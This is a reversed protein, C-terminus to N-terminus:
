VFPTRCRLARGKLLRVWHAEDRVPESSVMGGRALDEWEHFDSGSTELLGHDRAFALADADHSDHRLNGNFVEVGDILEPACRSLGKRFPHAQGFYLGNERALRSFSAPTMAYLRPNQRLFEECLGYVLYDEPGGAFRLEMGLMVQLGQREGEQRAQQYGSLWWDVQEQPSCGEGAQRLVGEYYHDTVIIGAYGKQRYAGVAEGAPVHGCPSVRETHFHTEYLYEM